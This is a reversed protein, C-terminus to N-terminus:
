FWTLQQPPLLSAGLESAVHAHSGDLANTDSGNETTTSRYCASVPVDVPKVFDDTNNLMGYQNFRMQPHYKATMLNFKQLSFFYRKIASQSESHFDFACFVKELERINRSNLSGNKMSGMSLPDLFYAVSSQPLMDQLRSYSVLLRRLERTCILALTAYQNINPHLNPPHNIMRKLQWLEQQKELTHFFSHTKGEGIKHKFEEHTLVDEFLDESIAHYNEMAEKLSTFDWEEKMTMETIVKSLPRSVGFWRKPFYPYASDASHKSGKGHLYGAMYSGVSKRVVEVRAQLIAVRYRVPKDTWRGWLDISHKTKIADYLRVMQRKFNKSIEAQVKVDPCYICYHFHLAGRKQNEWVYFELRSNLRKSLWAKLGNIIEHSYEAIGFKAEDTDGPLTATLFLFDEVNDSIRDCAGAAHMIRTIANHGFSTRAHSNVLVNQNTTKFESRIDLLSAPKPVNRVLERVEESTVGLASAAREKLSSFVGRVKVVTLRTENNPHIKYTLRYTM